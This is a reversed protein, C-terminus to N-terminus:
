FTYNIGVMFMSTTMKYSVSSGPVAGYPNSSSVMMPSLLPGSTAGNSSGYHYVANLTFRSTFEYGAGFQFANKIIATAPTSFFALESTIPNSSYTYGARLPFKAIGKFKVIGKVGEHDITTGTFTLQNTHTTKINVNPQPTSYYATFSISNPKSAMLHIAIVREGFSAIAQRTYTVGDVTYSTKTFASSIDLERYYNSYNDHGPFHLHLEGAPEFMQGQSKKSIIVRNAIQEAEKQRGALILRRIEAISDLALPNDNRNPGGSWLTHENLQITEDKVSGYVMAGLRGNGIPLANEWVRGSPKNYWLKLSSNNQAAAKISILNIAVIGTFIWSIIKIKM